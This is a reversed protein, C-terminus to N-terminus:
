SGGSYPQAWRQELREREAAPLTARLAARVALPDRARSVPERAVALRLAVTARSADGVREAMEDLHQVYAAVLRRVQPDDTTVDLAVTIDPPGQPDLGALHDVAGLVEEVEARLTDDFAAQLGDRMRLVAQKADAAPEPHLAARALADSLVAAAEAYREEPDAAAPVVRQVLLGRLAEVDAAVQAHAALWGHGQAASRRALRGWQASLARADSLQRDPEYTM